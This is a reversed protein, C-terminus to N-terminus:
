KKKKGSSDRSKSRKSQGSKYDNMMMMIKLNILFQNKAEVSTAEFDLTRKATHISFSKQIQEETVGKSFRKFKKTDRGNTFRLIDKVLIERKAKTALPDKWCLRKGNKYM